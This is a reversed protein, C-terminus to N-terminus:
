SVQPWRFYFHLGLLVRVQMKPKPFWREIGQVIPSHRKRAKPRCIYGLSRSRACFEPGRWQHLLASRYARPRRPIRAGPPRRLPRMRGETRQMGYRNDVHETIYAENIPAYFSPWGTGSEFKTDSSFLPLGCARCAFVGAAKVENLPSSFSRETGEERLINYEQNSLIEKWYAETTDLVEVMGTEAPPDYRYDPMAPEVGSATDGTAVTTQSTSNCALLVLLALASLYRM